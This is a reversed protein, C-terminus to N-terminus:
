LVGLDFLLLVIFIVASAAQMVLLGFQINLLVSVLRANRPRKWNFHEVVPFFICAWPLGGLILFILLHIPM